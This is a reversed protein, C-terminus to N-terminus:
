RTAKGKIKAPKLRQNHETLLKRAKEGWKKSADRTVAILRTTNMARERQAKNWGDVRYNGDYGISLDGTPVVRASFTGGAYSVHSVANDLAVALSRSRGWCYPGIVLWEENEPLLATNLESVIHINKM